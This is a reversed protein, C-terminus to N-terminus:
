GRLSNKMGFILLLLVEKIRMASAEIFFQHHHTYFRFDKKVTKKIFCVVGMKRYWGKHVPAPNEQGRQDLTQSFFHGVAFVTPM